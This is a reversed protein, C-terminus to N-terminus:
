PQGGTQNPNGLYDACLYEFAVNRKVGTQKEVMTLADDCVRAANPDVKFSFDVWSRNGPTSPQKPTRGRNRLRSVTKAVGGKIPLSKGLEMEKRAQDELRPQATVISELADALADASPKGRGLNLALHMEKAEMETVSGVDLVDVMLAGMDALCRVRCAGDIVEYMFNNDVQVYRVVLPVLQGFKRMSAKISEVQQKSHKTTSWSPLAVSNMDIRKQVGISKPVGATAAKM